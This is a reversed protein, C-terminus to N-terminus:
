YEIIEATLEDAEYTEGIAAVEAWGEVDVALEHNGTYQMIRDYLGSDRLGSGYHKLEIRYHFHPVAKPTTQIDEAFTVVCEIM